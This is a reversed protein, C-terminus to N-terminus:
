VAQATGVLVNSAVSAGVVVSTPETCNSGTSVPITAGVSLDSVANSSSTIRSRHSSKAVRISPLSAASITGTYVVSTSDTGQLLVAIILM